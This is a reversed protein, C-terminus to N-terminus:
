IYWTYSNMDIKWASVSIAAGGYKVVKGSGDYSITCRNRRQSKHVSRSDLAGTDLWEVNGDIDGYAIFHACLHRLGGWLGNTCLLLVRYYSSPWGFFPYDIRFSEYRWRKKSSPSWFQFCQGQCVVSCAFSSRASIDASVRFCRKEKKKEGVDQGLIRIVTLFTITGSWPSISTCLASSVLLLDINYHWKGLEANTVWWSINVFFSEMSDRICM